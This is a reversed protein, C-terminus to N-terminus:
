EGEPTDPRAELYDAIRKLSDAIRGLSFAAIGAWVLFSVAMPWAFCMWDM